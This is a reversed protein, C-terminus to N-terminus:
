RLDSRGAPARPMKLDLPEHVQLSRLSPPLVDNAKLSRVDLHTLRTLHQLELPNCGPLLENIRNGTQLSVLSTPFSDPMWSLSLHTLCTLQRLEADLNFLRRGGTPCTRVLSPSTVPTKFLTSPSPGFPDSALSHQVM